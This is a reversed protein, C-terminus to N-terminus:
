KGGKVKKNLIDVFARRQAEADDQIPTAGGKVNNVGSNANDAIAKNMFDEGANPQPAPEQPAAPAPATAKATDVFFQIDEATMGTEKAHLVTRHVLETGDDLADLASMRAREATVADNQVEQVLTGYAKMLDEKNKIDMTPNGEKQTPESPKPTAQKAMMKKIENLDNRAFNVFMRRSFNRPTNTQQPEGYLVGTAFGNEIAAAADMYTESDMLASLDDRNKGTSEEYINLIADKITDLTDAAKRMDDAYGTMDTLPNHVMFICGPTMQRSTGAMFALTAASMVKTDGITTVTGGSQRHEMLANYLGVGAYISGGYSDIYVNVHKGKYQALESRFTNPSACPVGFWEYVWAEESDLIDGTIRLDVADDDMANPAFNWFKMFFM